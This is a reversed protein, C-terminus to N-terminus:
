FGIVLNFRGHKFNYAGKFEPTLYINEIELGLRGYYFALGASTKFVVRNLQNASITYFNQNNFIGGQLTADYFVLNFQAKSFFWFRFKHTGDQANGVWQNNLIPLFRGLRFSAGGGIKNYVTGFRAKGLAFLEFHKKRLVAKEMQISYDLVLDNKIQNEWGIPEIEHISSQVRGGLSAPGLVGVSFESKMKLGKEINVSERFHGITLYASFPRDSTSVIKTDPNVPTYINQVVSFGQFNYDPKKLGLLLKSTPANSILDLVLEIRIGNTYYYDTNDFIDNDFVVRLFSTKDKKNELEPTSGKRKLSHQNQKTSTLNFLNQAALTTLDAHVKNVSVTRKISSYYKTKNEQEFVSNISKPKLTFIRSETIELEHQVMEEAVRLFLIVFVITLLYKLLHLM